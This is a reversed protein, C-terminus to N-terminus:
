SKASAGLAGSAGEAYGTSPFARLNQLSCKGLSDYDPPYSSFDTLYTDTKGQVMQVACILVCQPWLRCQKTKNLEKSSDTRLCSAFTQQCLQFSSWGRCVPKPSMKELHNTRPNQGKAMFGVSHAIDLDKLCFHGSGRQSDGHCFDPLRRPLCRKSRSGSRELM